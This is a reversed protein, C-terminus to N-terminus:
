DKGTARKVYEWASRESLFYPTLGPVGPIAHCPEVQYSDTSTKNVTVPMYMGLYARVVGYGPHDDDIIIIGGMLPQNHIM